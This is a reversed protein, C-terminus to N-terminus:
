KSRPRRRASNWPLRCAPALDPTAQASGEPYSLGSRGPYAPHLGEWLQEHSTPAHSIPAKRCPSWDDFSANVQVELRFGAQGGDEILRIKFRQAACQNQQLIRGIQWNSWVFLILVRM